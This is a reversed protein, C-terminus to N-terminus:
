VFHFLRNKHFRAVLERNSNNAHKNTRPKKRREVKEAQTVAAAAADEVKAMQEFEEQSIQGATLKTQLLEMRDVHAGVTPKAMRKDAVEVRMIKNFEDQSIEGEELKRMMVKILEARDASSGAGPESEPLSHEGGMAFAFM